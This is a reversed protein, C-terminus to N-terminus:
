FRLFVSSFEVGNGAGMVVLMCLDGRKLTGNKYAEAMLVLTSAASLNGYEAVHKPIKDPQENPDIGFKRRCFIDFVRSNVQHLFLKDIDDLTYDTSEILKKYAKEMLRIFSSAAENGDLCYLIGQETMEAWMLRTSIDTGHHYKWIGRRSHEEKELLVAGAGGGFIQQCIEQGTGRYLSGNIHKSPAHSAVILATRKDSGRLREAARIIASGVGGCGVTAEQAHSVSVGLRQALDKAAQNFFPNVTASVFTLLDVEELKEANSLAERAAVKAMRVEDIQEPNKAKGTVPSIRSQLNRSEIGLKNKPWEPNLDPYGSVQIASVLEENGV